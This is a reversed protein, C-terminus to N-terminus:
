WKKMMVVKMIVMVRCGYDSTNDCVNDYISDDYGDNINVDYCNNGDSGSKDGDCM